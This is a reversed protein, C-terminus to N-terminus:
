KIKISHGSINLKNFKNEASSTGEHQTTTATLSSIFSGPTHEGKITLKYFPTYPALPFRRSVSYARKEENLLCPLSTVKRRGAAPLDKSLRRGCGRAARGRGGDSACALFKGKVEPRWANRTNPTTWQAFHRDSM